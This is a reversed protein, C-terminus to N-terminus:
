EKENKTEIFFKIYDFDQIKCPPEVQPAGDLPNLSKDWDYKRKYSRLEQLIKAESMFKRGM